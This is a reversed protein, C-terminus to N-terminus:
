FFSLINREYFFYIRQLQRYSQDFNYQSECQLTVIRDAVPTVYYIM